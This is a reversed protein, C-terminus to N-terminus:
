TAFIQTRLEYFIEKWQLIPLVDTQSIVLKIQSLYLLLFVKLSFLHYIM